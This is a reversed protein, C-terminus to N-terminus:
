QMSTEAHRGTTQTGVFIEHGREAADMEDAHAADAHAANGLHEAVETVVYRTRVACWRRGGLAEGREAHVHMDTV